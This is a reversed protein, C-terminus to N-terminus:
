LIRGESLWVTRDAALDAMDDDHTALVIAAGAAAQTRLVGALRVKATHDLGHTPEDLLILAPRKALIVALALRQQEGLSLDRPYDNLHEELGFDSLLERDANIEDKVTEAFLLSNPRQPVYGVKRFIDAKGTAGASGKIVATGAQPDIFGCITRLLTTKGAGNPGRLAVVEGARVTLDAGDLVRRNGYNVRLGKVEM